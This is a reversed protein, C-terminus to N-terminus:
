RNGFDDERPTFWGDSLALRTMAADITGWTELAPDGAVLGPRNHGCHVGSDRGHEGSAPLGAHRPQPDGGRLAGAFGRGRQAPVGGGARSTTRRVSRCGASSPGPRGTAAPFPTLESEARLWDTVLDAVDRGPFWGAARQGPVAERSFRRQTAARLDSYREAIMPPPFPPWRTVEGTERDVVAHESVGFDGNGGAGSRSGSRRRM